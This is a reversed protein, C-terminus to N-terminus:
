WRSLGLASVIAIQKGSLSSYSVGFGFPTAVRRIKQETTFVHVQPGGSPLEGYDTVVHETHCMVHGYRMVMGDTGLASVNHLVDGVNGFWDAAWSWPALNWLVEPSLTVGLLKRAYSGYRRFKDNQSSGTPLHYIYSAEFWKRQRRYQFRGGGKFVGMDLRDCNFDTQSFKSEYTMPWHYSRKLAINSHEQYSRLIDDADKVTKAFDRVSRVLPLWGFETNLYESGAKKALRTQEMVTSGPANPIGEHFIEGLATSLDFAPATPETRAIAQTGSVILSAESPSSYPVLNTIGTRAGGIRTTGVGLSGNTGKKANVTSPQYDHRVRSLTWNGGGSWCAGNWRNTHGVSTETSLVGPFSYPTFPVLGNSREIGSIRESTWSRTKTSSVM